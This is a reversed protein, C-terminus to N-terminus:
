MCLIYACIHVNENLSILRPWRTGEDPNKYHDCSCFPPNCCPQLWPAPLVRLNHNLITVFFIFNDSGARPNTKPRFIYLQIKFAERGGSTRFSVGWTSEQRRRWSSTWSTWCQPCRSRTSSVPPTLPLIRELTMRLITCGTKKEIDIFIWIFSGKLYFRPPNHTVVKKTGDPSDFCACLGGCQGDGPKGSPESKNVYVPEKM